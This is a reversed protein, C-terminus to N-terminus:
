ISITESDEPVYTTFHTQGVAPDVITKYNATTGSASGRIGSKIDVNQYYTNASTEGTPQLDIYECGAGVNVYRVFKKYQSGLPLAEFHESDWEGQHNVICKFYRVGHKVIDGVVYSTEEDFTPYPMSFKIQYCDDGFTCSETNEGLYIYRCYNGIKNGTCNGYMYINQCGGGFINESSTGYIYINQCGAGFINNDCNASIKNNNFKEGAQNYKFNNGITNGSGNQFQNYCSDDGVTNNKWLGNIMNKHCHNGFISGQIPNNAYPYISEGLTNNTFHHGYCCRDSYNFLNLGCAEGVVNYKFTGNIYNEHFNNSIINGSIPRAQIEGGYSYRETKINNLSFQYGCINNIFPAYPKSVSVGSIADTDCKIENNATNKSFTNASCGILNNDRNGIGFFVNRPLYLKLGSTSYRNKICSINNNYIYSTGSANNAVTADEGSGNDFTYYWKYSNPDVNVTLKGSAASVNSASTPSYYTDSSSQAVFASIGTPADIGSAEIGTIAWRKFMINKFDYGCKNGFEDELEYVIGKHLWYGSPAWTYVGIDNDITYKLKWAALNSGNFYTDGERQIAYANENLENEKDARVIIDYDHGAASIDADGTVVAQYDTIRYWQGPRLRSSDRNIRLTNYSTNVCLASIGSITQNIASVASSVSEEIDDVVAIDQTNYQYTYPRNFTLYGTAHNNAVGYPAFDNGSIFGSPGCDSWVLKAGGFEAASVGGWGQADIWPYYMLVYDSDQEYTSSFLYWRGASNHVDAVNHPEAASTPVYYYRETRDGEGFFPGYPGKFTVTIDGSQYPILQSQHSDVLGFGNKITITPAGYTIGTSTRTLRENLLIQTDM